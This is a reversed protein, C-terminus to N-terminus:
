ILLIPHIRMYEKAIFPLFANFVIVPVPPLNAETIKIAKTACIGLNILNHM